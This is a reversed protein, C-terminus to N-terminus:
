VKPDKPDVRLTSGITFAGTKGTGNKSQAIMHNIPEKVILPVAVAQIRSPKKFDLGDIIGKLIDEPIKFHEEDDWSVKTSLFPSTLAQKVYKNGKTIKIDQM